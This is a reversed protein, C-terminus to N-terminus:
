EGATRSRALALPREGAPAAESVEALQEGFVVYYTSSLVFAAIATLIALLDVDPM